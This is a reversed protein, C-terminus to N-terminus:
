VQLPGYKTQITKPQPTASEQKQAVNSGTGQTATFNGHERLYNSLDELEKELEERRGVPAKCILGKVESLLDACLLAPRAVLQYLNYQSFNSNLANYLDFENVKGPSRSSIWKLKKLRAIASDVYSVWLEKEKPDIIAEVSIKVLELRHLINGLRQGTEFRRKEMVIGEFVQSLVMRDYDPCDFPATVDDRFAFDLLTLAVEGRREEPLEELADLTSAYFLFAPRPKRPDFKM